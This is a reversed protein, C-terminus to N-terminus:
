KQVAEKAAFFVKGWDAAPPPPAGQTWRIEAETRVLSVLDADIPVAPKVDFRTAEIQDTRAVVAGVFAACHTISSVFGVPWVSSRDEGVPIATAVAGFQTLAARACSRGLAFERQRAPVAHTV